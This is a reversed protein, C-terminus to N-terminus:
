RKGGQPSQEGGETHRGHGTHAGPEGQGGHGGHGGHMFLHLLPCLLLLVFPLIGFLHAKHETALFFGDIALFGLLVWATRSRTLNSWQSQGKFAM